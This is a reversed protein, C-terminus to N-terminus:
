TNVAVTVNAVTLAISIRVVAAAAAVAAAFVVIVTAKSGHLLLACLTNTATAGDRADAPATPEGVISSSSCM